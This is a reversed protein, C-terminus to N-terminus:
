KRHGLRRQHVGDERQFLFPLATLLRDRPGSPLGGDHLAAAPRMQPDCLRSVAVARCPVAFRVVVECQAVGALWSAHREPQVRDDVGVVRDGAFKVVPLHWSTPLEELMCEWKSLTM